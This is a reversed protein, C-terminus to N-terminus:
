LINRKLLETKNWVLLVKDKPFQNWKYNDRLVQYGKVEIFCDWDYVYFDPRYTSHTKLENIYPFRNENRKWKLGLRDFYIAVKLEWSGDVKIKGAVDSDYDLKPARGCKVEFGNKYKNLMVNRMHKKMTPKSMGNNKGILKPNGKNSKRIKEKHDESLPKGGKYRNDQNTFPSIWNENKVRDKAANSNKIKMMSCSNCSKECCYKKNRLIFKAIKNCGYDCIHHLNGNLSIIEKKKTM